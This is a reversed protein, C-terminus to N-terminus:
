FELLAGGVSFGAAGGVLLVRHGSRIRGDALCESLVVPISAAAQNGYDDRLHLKEAAGPFRKLVSRVMKPVVQHPIIHNVTELSEGALLERVLDPLYKRALKLELPGDVFFRADKPSYNPGSPMHKLGGARLSAVASNGGLAETRVIVRSVRGAPLTTSGTPRPPRTRTDNPTASDGPTLLAAAAGDGFLFASSPDDPNAVRSPMEASVILVRRKKGSRIYLDAVELANLFSLCVAEVHVCQVSPLELRHAYLMADTPISQDRSTGASVIMDIEGLGGTLEELRRVADMGLDTPSTDAPAVRRSRLGTRQSISGPEFGFLEEYHDNEVSRNPTVSAIATLYCTDTTM